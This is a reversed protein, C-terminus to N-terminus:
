MQDMGEDANEINEEDEMCCCRQPYGVVNRHTCAVCQMETSVVSCKPPYCVAYICLRYLRCKQRCTVCVVCQMESHDTHLM